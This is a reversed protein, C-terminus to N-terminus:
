GSSYVVVTRIKRNGKYHLSADYFMFRRIDEQRNTTQFEFHLYNGDETYFTYDMFNTNIKIDKLETQAPAIIKTNIGFFDVANQQFFDMASKLVSDEIKEYDM